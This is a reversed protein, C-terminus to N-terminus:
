NLLISEAIAIDDEGAYASRFHPYLEIETDTRQHAKGDDYPCKDMRVAEVDNHILDRVRKIGRVADSLKEKSCEQPLTKVHCSLRLSDGTPASGHPYGRCWMVLQPGVDGTSCAPLVGLPRASECVTYNSLVTRAEGSVESFKLLSKYWQKTEQCCTGLASRRDNSELLRLSDTIAWHPRQKGDWWPYFAPGGSREWFWFVRRDAKTARSPSM